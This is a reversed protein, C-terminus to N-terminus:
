LVGFYLKIKKSLNHMEEADNRLLKDFMSVQKKDDELIILSCLDVITLMNREIIDSHLEVMRDDFYGIAFQDAIENATKNALERIKSNYYKM